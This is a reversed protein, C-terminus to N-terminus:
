RRCAPRRQLAKILILPFPIIFFVIAATGANKQFSFFQLIDNLMRQTDSGPPFGEPAGNEEM